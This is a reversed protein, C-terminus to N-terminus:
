DEDAVWYVGSVSPGLVVVGADFTQDTAPDWSWGDQWPLRSSNSAFRSTPIDFHALFADAITKARRRPLRESSYALDARVLEVLLTRAFDADVEDWATGLPKLGARLAVSDFTEAEKLDVAIWVDSRRRGGRLRDVVDRGSARERRTRASM